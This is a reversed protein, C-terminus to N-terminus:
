EEKLFISEHPLITQSAYSKKTAVRVIVGCQELRSLSQATTSFPTKLAKSVAAISLEITYNGGEQQGYAMCYDILKFYFCKDAYTIKVANRRALDNLHRDIKVKDLIM